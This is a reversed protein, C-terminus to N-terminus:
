QKKFPNVIRVGQVVQGHTMDETYLLEAGGNVAAQLIMADWFSFQHEEHIDIAKLISSEDNVFLQWLLLDKIIVKATDIDIPKKIKCTVTVFFEQIVQTSIMGKKSDWLRMLIDKATHNKPGASTDYAYILINTDLFVRNESM